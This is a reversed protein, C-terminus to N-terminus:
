GPAEAPPGDTAKPDEKRVIRFANYGDGLWFRDGHELRVAEDTKLRKRNAIDTGCFTGYITGMEKLWVQSDDVLLCCHRGAVAHYPHRRFVMDNKGPDSGLRISGELFVRRGAFDGSECELFYQCPPSPPVIDRKARKMHWRCWLEAHLESIWSIVDFTM